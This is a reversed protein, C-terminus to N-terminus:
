ILRRVAAKQAGTLACFIAGYTQAKDDLASLKIPPAIEKQIRQVVQNLTTLMFEPAGKVVGGGMVILDPDLIAVIDAIGVGLM